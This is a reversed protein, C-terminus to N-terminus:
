YFWADILNTIADTMIRWIKKTSHNNEITKAMKTGVEFPSKLNKKGNFNTRNMNSVNYHNSVLM